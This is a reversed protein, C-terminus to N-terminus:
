WASSILKVSCVIFIGEWIFPFDSIHNETHIGDINAYSRTQVREWIKVLTAHICWQSSFTIVPKPSGSRIELAVNSNLIDFKSWFLNDAGKRKFVNISESWVQMFVDNPTFTSSVKSSGRCIKLTVSAEVKQRKQSKVFIYLPSTHYKPCHIGSRFCGPNQSM